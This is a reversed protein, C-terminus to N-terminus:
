DIDVREVPVADGLLLHDLLRDFRELLGALADHEHVVNLGDGSARQRLEELLELLAIELHHVDDRSCGLALRSGSQDTSRPSDARIVIWGAAEHPRHKQAWLGTTTPSSVRGSVSFLPPLAARIM